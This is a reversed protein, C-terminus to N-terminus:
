RIDAPIITFLCERVGDIPLFPKQVASGHVKASQIAELARWPLTPKEPEEHEDADQSPGKDTVNAVAMFAWRSDPAQTESGDAAFAQVRHAKKLMTVPDAFSMSKCYQPV